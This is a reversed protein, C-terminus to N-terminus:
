SSNGEKQREKREKEMIDRALKQVAPYAMLQVLRGVALGVHRGKESEWSIVSQYTVGLLIAWEAPTYGTSERLARLEQPTLPSRRQRTSPAPM